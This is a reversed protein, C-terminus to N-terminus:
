TEENGSTSGLILRICFATVANSELVLADIVSELVDDDLEPAEDVVVADEAVDDKIVDDVIVGVGVGTDFHEEVSPPVIECGQTVVKCSPSFTKFFPSIAKFPTSLGKFDPSCAAVVACSAPPM